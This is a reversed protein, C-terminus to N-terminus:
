VAHRTFGDAWTYCQACNAAPRPLLLCTRRNCIVDAFFVIPFYGPLWLVGGPGFTGQSTRPEVLNKSNRLLVSVDKGKKATPNQDGEDESSDSDDMNLEGAGPLAGDGDDGNLLFRLCAELCPRNQERIIRLRRLMFAREKM